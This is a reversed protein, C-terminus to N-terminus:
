RLRAIWIQNLVSGEGSDIGHRELVSEVDSLLKRRAEVPLSGVWSFSGVWALLKARDFSWRTKM